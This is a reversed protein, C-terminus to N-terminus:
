RRERDRRPPLPTLTLATMANGPWAPRQQGSRPQRRTARLHNRHGGGREIANDRRQRLRRALEGSEGPAVAPRDADRDQEDHEHSHRAECSGSTLPKAMRVTVAPEIDNANRAIAWLTITMEPPISRDTPGLQHEGVAERRHPHLVLAEGGAEGQAEDDHQQRRRKDVSVPTIVVTDPTGSMMTVSAALKM